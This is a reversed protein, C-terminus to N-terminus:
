AWTETYNSPSFNRNLKFRLRYMITRALLFFDKLIDRPGMIISAHLTLFFQMWSSVSCITISAMKLAIHLQHCASAICDPSLLRRLFVLSLLEASVIFRPCICLVFLKKFCYSLEIILICNNWFMVGLSLSLASPLLLYSLILQVQFLCLPLM